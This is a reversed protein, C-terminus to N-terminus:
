KEAQLKNKSRLIRILIDKFKGGAGECQEFTKCFRLTAAFDSGDKFHVTCGESLLQDEEAAWLHVATQCTVVKLNSQTVRSDKELSEEFQEQGYLCPLIALWVLVGACGLKCKKSVGGSFRSRAM